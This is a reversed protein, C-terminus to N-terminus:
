VEEQKPAFTLEPVEGLYIWVKIGVYGYTTHARDEAYDVNARLTSLPVSGASFTEKRGIEAGGLRGKARIKIGLAKAKMTADIAAKIARKYPIRKEIQEVINHAVLVASHEPNKVENIVLSVKKKVIKEIGKKLEDAGTGGRGIIMGPRATDITVTVLLPSREIAISAIAAGALKKSLYERLKRDALVNLAFDQKKAAFWSACWNKTIGLRYGIPNAKQGM